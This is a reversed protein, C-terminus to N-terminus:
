REPGGLYAAIVRPDQRVQNATGLAIREGFHLVALRDCLRMMLPVNHEIIMVTLSFRKRIAGILACLDEKETPNMGATPEDLLLLQPNTALARAIELRRRKGYSLAGAPHDAEPMLDVLALLGMAKEM